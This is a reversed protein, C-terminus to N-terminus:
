GNEVVYANKALQEGLSLARQNLHRLEPKAKYKDAFMDDLAKEMAPLTIEKIESLLAGAMVMNFVKPTLRKAAAETAPVALKEAYVESLHSPDVQSSDFIYLTDDGVYQQVREVARECLVVIIDAKSFKPFGIVGKGFQLYGLSVGGRQEVGYNPMYAVHLGKDFAAKAFAHALVQVGQGGEGAIIIKYVDRTEM